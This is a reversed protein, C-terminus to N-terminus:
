RAVHVEGHVHRGSRPQAVAREDDDVRELAHADLCGSHQPSRPSLAEAGDKHEVLDVSKDGLQAQAGALRVQLQAADQLLHPPPPPLYSQLLPAVSTAEGGDGRGGCALAM